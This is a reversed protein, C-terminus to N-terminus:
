PARLDAAVDYMEVSARTGLGEGPPSMANLTADGISRDEETRVPRDRHDPRQRPRGPVPLGEGAGGRRGPRPRRHSRRPPPGSADAKGGEWRVVRAYMTTGGNRTRADHASGGARGPMACAAATLSTEPGPGRSPHVHSTTPLSGVQAPGCRRGRPGASARRAPRASARGPRCRGPPPSSSSRRRASPGLATSGASSRRRARRRRGRRASRRRGRVARVVADVVPPEARLAEEAPLGVIAPGASAAARGRSPSSPSVSQSLAISRTTSRECSSSSSRAAPACRSRCSRGARGRPSSCARTIPWAPM